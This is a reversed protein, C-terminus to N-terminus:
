LLACRISTLLLAPHPIFILIVLASYFFVTESDQLGGEEGM